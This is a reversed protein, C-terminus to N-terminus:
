ESFIVWTGRPLVIALVLFMRDIAASVGLSTTAAEQFIPVTAEASAAPFRARDIAASTRYPRDTEVVSEMEVVPCARDAIASGAPCHVPDRAESRLFPLHAVAVVRGIVSRRRRVSVLDASRRRAEAVAPCVPVRVVAVVRCAPDHVAVVARCVQGRVAAASVPRAPDRSEVGAGELAAVVAVEAASAAAVVVAAAGLPAPTM